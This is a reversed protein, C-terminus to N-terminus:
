REIYYMSSIINDGDKLSTVVKLEGNKSRVLYVNQGYNNTEVPQKRVIRPIRQADVRSIDHKYIGKDLGYNRKTGTALKLDKGYVIPTGSESPLAEGRQLVVSEGNHNKMKAIVDGGSGQFPNEKLQDYAKGIKHGQYLMNGQEYGAKALNGVSMAAGGYEAVNGASRIADGQGQADQMQLYDNMQTDIGKKSGFWDLAGFTIGNIARNAGYLTNLADELLSNEAARQSQSSFVDRGNQKNNDSLSGDTAFSNNTKLSNVDSFSGTGFSSSGFTNNNENVGNDSVSQSAPTMTGGYLQPSTSQHMENYHKVFDNIKDINDSSSSGSPQGFVFDEDAVTASQNDAATEEDEALSEEEEAVSEEDEEEQEASREEEREKIKRWNAELQERLTPRNESTGNVNRKKGYAEAFPVGGNARGYAGDSPVGGYAAYEPMHNNRYYSM